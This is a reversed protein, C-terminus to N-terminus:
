SIGVLVRMAASMMRCFPQLQLDLVVLHGKGKGIPKNQSAKLTLHFCSQVPTFTVSLSSSSHPPISGWSTAWSTDSAKLSIIKEKPYVEAERSQKMQSALSLNGICCNQLQWGELQM